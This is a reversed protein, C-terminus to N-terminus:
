KLMRIKEEILEAYRQLKHAHAKELACEGSGKCQSHSFSICVFGYPFDGGNLLKFAHVRYCVLCSINRSQLLRRLQSTEPMTAACLCTLRRKSVRAEEIEYYISLLLDTAVDKGSSVGDKLIEHTVTMKNFHVGMADKGSNHFTGLFSIDSDASGLLTALNERIGKHLIANSTAPITGFIRFAPSVKILLYTRCKVLIALLATCAIGVLTKAIEEKIDSM